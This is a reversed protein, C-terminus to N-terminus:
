AELTASDTCIRCVAGIKYYILVSNAITTQSFLM